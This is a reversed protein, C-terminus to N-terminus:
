GGVIDTSVCLWATLLIHVWRSQRCTSSILLFVIWSMHPFWSPICTASILPMGPKVQCVECERHVNKALTKAKGEDHFVYWRGMELWQREGGPHGAAAHHQRIVRGMLEKPVCLLGNRYLRGTRFDIQVGPAWKVKPGKEEIQKLVWSWRPCKRYEEVWEEDMVPRPEAGEVHGLPPWGRQPAAPLVLSLDTVSSSADDEM